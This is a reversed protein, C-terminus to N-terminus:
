MSLVYGPAKICIGWGVGGRRLCSHIDYNFIALMSKALEVFLIQVSIYQPNHKIHYILTVACYTAQQQQNPQLGLM